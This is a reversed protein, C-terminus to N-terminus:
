RMARMLVWEVDDVNMAIQTAIDAFPITRQHSPRQFVMEVVALLTIKKKIAELSGPSSLAGENSIAQQNNSLLTSFTALSLSFSCVGVLVVVTLPWVVWGGGGSNGVLCVCVMGGLTGINGSNFCELMELIWANSTGRLAALVDHSLVEGFNYVGEWVLAALSVSKAWSQQEAGSMEGMPTYALYMLANKYYEEAPGVVQFYESAARYYSASVISDVLDSSPLANLASNAEKLQNKLSTKRELDQPM